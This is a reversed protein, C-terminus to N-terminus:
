CIYLSVLASVGAGATLAAAIAGAASSSIAVGAVVMGGPILAVGAFVAAGITYVAAMAAAHCFADVRVGSASSLTRAPAASLVYEGSFSRTLTLTARDTRLVVASRGVALGQASVAEINRSLEAAIEEGDTAVTVSVTPVPSTVAAAQAPTTATVALFSVAVAALVASFRRRAHHSM